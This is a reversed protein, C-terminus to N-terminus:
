LEEERGLQNGKASYNVAKRKSSSASEANPLREKETDSREAKADKIPKPRQTSLRKEAKAASSKGSTLTPSNKKKERNV